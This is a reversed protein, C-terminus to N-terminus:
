GLLALIAEATQAQQEEASICAAGDGRQPGYAGFQAHNGGEVILERADAPWFARGAEYQERNLCGDESGYVSLLRLSEPLPGSPYAALLVLADFDDPRASVYNAAVAGGLSHGALLWVDYDNADRILGAADMDLVAMRLPMYILFCDLGGAALKRMLPAYAEAEVKAGPYFILAADTGPGDFFLGKDIGSVSVAEDSALSAGAEPGAHYYVSLFVFGATGVLLLGVAASLLLKGRLGRKGRLLPFVILAGLAMCLLLAALCLLYYKL